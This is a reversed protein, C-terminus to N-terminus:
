LLVVCILAFLAFCLSRFSGLGFVHPVYRISGFRVSGFRVSGFRVLDLGADGWSKRCPPRLAPLCCSPWIWRFDHRLLRSVFWEAVFLLGAIHLESVAWCCLTTRCWVTLGTISQGTVPMGTISQGTVPIGTISQGTVPIGAISQGTVPMGTISQGTVPMGTISQGTAPIGTM